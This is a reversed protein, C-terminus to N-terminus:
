PLPQDVNASFLREQVSGPEGMLEADSGNFAALVGGANGVRVLVNDEAAWTRQTGEALVGEFDLQGDVTVRLWSREKMELEVRVPKGLLAPDLSDPRTENNERANLLTALDPPGVDEPETSSSLLNESSDTNEAVPSTSSNRPSSLSSASPSSGPSSGSDPTALTPDPQGPRDGNDLRVLVAGLSIVALTILAVYALYLHAQRLQAVDSNQWSPKLEPEDAFLPFATSIEAGDLGLVEAYRKIFGRVYIAEPLANIDGAEIARIHRGAIMTKGAVQDVVLGQEERVQQLYTGIQVLRESQSYSSRPDSHSVDQNM